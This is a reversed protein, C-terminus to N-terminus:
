GPMANAIGFVAYYLLESAVDPADINALRDVRKKRKARTDIQAAERRRYLSSLLCVM